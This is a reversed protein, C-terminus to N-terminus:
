ATAKVRARFERKRQAQCERCEGDRGRRLKTTTPKPTFADDPKWGHCRHCRLTDERVSTAQIKAYCAKCRAWQGRGTSAVGRCDPCVGRWPKHEFQWALAAARNRARYEPDVACLVATGTVGLQRAIAEFSLGTDRLRRAEDWDFRRQRNM